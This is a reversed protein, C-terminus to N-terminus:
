RKINLLNLEAPLKANERDAVAHRLTLEAQRKQLLAHDEAYKLSAKLAEAKARKRVAVSSQSLNHSSITQNSSRSANERFKMDEIRLSLKRMSTDVLLRYGRLTRNFRQLEIDSKHRNLFQLYDLGQTEQKTGNKQIESHLNFL